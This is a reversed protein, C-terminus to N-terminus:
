AMGKATAEEFKDRNAEFYKRPIEGEAPKVKENYIEELVEALMDDDFSINLNADQIDTCCACAHGYYLDDVM